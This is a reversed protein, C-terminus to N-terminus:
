EWMGWQAGALNPPVSFDVSHQGSRLASRPRLQVLVRGLGLGSAPPFSLFGQAPPTVRSLLCWMDCSSNNQPLQWNPLLFSEVMTEFSRGCVSFM